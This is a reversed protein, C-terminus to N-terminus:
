AASDYSAQIANTWTGYDYLQEISQEANDRASEPSAGRSLHYNVMAVFYANVSEHMATRAAFMAEMADGNAQYIAQRAALDNARQTEQYQEFATM